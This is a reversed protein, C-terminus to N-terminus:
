ISIDEGIAFGLVYEIGGGMVAHFEFVLEEMWGANLKYSAKV